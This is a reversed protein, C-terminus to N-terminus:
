RRSARILFRRQWVPRLDVQCDFNFHPVRSVQSTKRTETAIGGQRHFCGLGLVFYDGARMSPLRHSCRCTAYNALSTEDKASCKYACEEVWWRRGFICNPVRTQVQRPLAVGLTCASLVASPPSPQRLREGEQQVARQNFGRLSSPWNGQQRKKKQCQDSDRRRQLAAKQKGEFCFRGGEGGDSQADLLVASRPPRRCRSINESLHFWAPSHQFARM